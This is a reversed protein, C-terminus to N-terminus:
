IRRIWEVCYSKNKVKYRSAYICFIRANPFMKQIHNKIITLQKIAKERRDSLKCEVIVIYRRKGNCYHIAYDDVERDIGCEDKFILNEIVSNYFRKGKWERSRLDKFIIDEFIQGTNM